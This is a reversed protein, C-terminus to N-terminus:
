MLLANLHRYVSRYIYIYFNLFYYLFCLFQQNMKITFPIGQDIKILHWLSFFARTCWAFEFDGTFVRREWKPISYWYKTEFLWKKKNKNGHVRTQHTLLFCLLVFNFLVFWVSITWWVGVEVLEIDHVYLSKIFIVNYLLTAGTMVTPDLLYKQQIFSLTPSVLIFYLPFSCFPFSCWESYCLVLIPFFCVVSVDSPERYWPSASFWLSTVIARLNTVRFVCSFFQGPSNLPFLLGIWIEVEVRDFNEDQKCLYM